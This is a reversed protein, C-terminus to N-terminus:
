CHDCKVKIYSQIEENGEGKGEWRDLVCVNMYLSEGRIQLLYTQLLIDIWQFLMSGISSITDAFYILSFLYATDVRKIESSLTVIM